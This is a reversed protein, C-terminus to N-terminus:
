GGTFIIEIFYIIFYNTQFVVSSETHKDWECKASKRREVLYKNFM